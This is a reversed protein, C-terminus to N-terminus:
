CLAFEFSKRNKNKNENAIQERAVRWYQFYPLLYQCQNYSLYIYNYYTLTKMIISWHNVYVFYRYLISVIDCALLKGLAIHHCNGKISANVNQIQKHSHVPHITKLIFIYTTNASTPHISTPIIFLQTSNKKIKKLKKSLLKM